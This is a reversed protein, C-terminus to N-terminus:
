NDDSIDGSLDSTIDAVAASIRNLINSDNSSSLMDNVRVLASLRSLSRALIDLYTMKTTLDLEVDNANFVQDTIRRIFVRLLSIEDDLGSALAGDLDQLEFDSFFKSYFGHKLANTNGPQGGRKRDSTM